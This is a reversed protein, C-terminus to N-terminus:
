ACSINLSVFTSTKDVVEGQLASVRRKEPYGQLEPLRLKLQQYQGESELRQEVDVHRRSICVFNGIIPKSSYEITRESVRRQHSPQNGPKLLVLQIDKILFQLLLACAQKFATANV